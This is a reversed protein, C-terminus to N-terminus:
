DFFEGAAVLCLARGINENRVAIGNAFRKHSRHKISFEFVQGQRAGDNLWM